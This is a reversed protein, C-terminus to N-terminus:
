ATVASQADRVAGVVQQVQERTIAASIPLALHTRALEDTAPLDAGAGWPRMAVQRHVPTRYYGRSEIGAQALSAQLADPHEHRIVYLHWAPVAGPTAIPLRAFQGLGAEDYWGAAAHRTWRRGVLTPNM